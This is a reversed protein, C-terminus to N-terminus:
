RPRRPSSVPPVQVRAVLGLHDSAWLRPDGPDPHDFCLACSSVTLRRDVLIYDLTGRWPTPRRATWLGAARLLLTRSTSGTWGPLALPTPYTWAPEAGHVVAHASPLSAVLRRISAYGPTANFDGCMVAPVDPPLWALLREAQRQRGGDRPSWILHTSVVRVVGDGVLVDVGLAARWQSGLDLVAHGAIPLRSLIAVADFHARWGPRHGTVVAYGDLGDALEHANALRVDVEQLTVVDPALRRLESLVLPARAPWSARDALLNLTV